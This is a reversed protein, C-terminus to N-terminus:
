LGLLRQWASDSESGAQGPWASRVLTLKFKAVQGHSLSDRNVTGTVTTALGPGPGRSSAQPGSGPGAAEASITM